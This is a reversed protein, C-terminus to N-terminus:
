SFVFLSAPFNGKKLSIMAKAAMSGKTKITIHEDQGTLLITLFAQINM